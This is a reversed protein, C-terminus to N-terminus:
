GIDISHGPKGGILGGRYFYFLWVGINVPHLGIGGRYM